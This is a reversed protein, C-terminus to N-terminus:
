VKEITTFKLAGDKFSGLRTDFIDILYNQYNKWPSKIGQKPLIDIARSLYGSSFGLMDQESEEINNNMPKCQKYGKKNMHNILRCLFECTLDSRLTWSANVYGFSNVLNPIGSFMMGKYTVTKSLDVELGDVKVNIGSLMQLKLGTATVILDADLIDGSELVIGEKVFSKIHATMVSAKENNISNFLDGNPVLCMRQEWPNYTPTFHKPVDYDKGLANQVAELLLKKIRNPFKRCLMFYFQGRLINRWRVLFHALNDTLYKRIFNAMLDKDPAQVVYSPSRQLMTVHKAKESIAPVLTVATAGSGIIVVNKNTYDIDETWKQPHVITGLFDESGKFSPEYGAEYDFYGSCMSLFNCTLYKIENTNVVEVKVTWLCKDSSWSLDVVKHEFQIKEDIGFEEATEHLYKLISPGDAISKAETWPKFSFGLTYMDSDSRIGPYKFLDWTGGLDKRSELIAYTANPNKTQLHYGAGIGSIGAGVILVDFHAKV